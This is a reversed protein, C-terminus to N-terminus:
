DVGGAFPAVEKIASAMAKIGIEIWAGALPPSASIARCSDPLAIEIWAGGLPAVSGYIQRVDLALHKLGRGGALPAVSGRRRYFIAIHLKM